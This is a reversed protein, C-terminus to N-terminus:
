EGDGRISPNVMESNLRQLVSRAQIIREAQSTPDARNDILANLVQRSAQEPLWVVAQVVTARSSEDLEGTRELQYIALWITEIADLRRSLAQLAREHRRRHASTDTAHALARQASMYSMWASLVGVSGAIFTPGVVLWISMTQTQALTM